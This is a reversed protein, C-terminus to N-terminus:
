SSSRSEPTGTSGFPDGRKVTSPTSTPLALGKTSLEQRERARKALSSLLKLADTDEPIHLCGDNDLRWGVSDKSEEGMDESSDQSDNQLSELPIEPKRKRSSSSGILESAKFWASEGNWVSAVNQERTLKPRTLLPKSKAEKEPSLTLGSKDSKSSTGFKTSPADLKSSLTRKSMPDDLRSLKKWNDLSISSSNGSTKEFPKSTSTGDKSTDMGHNKQTTTKAFSLSFGRENAEKLRRSMAALAKNMKEQKSNRQKMLWVPCQLPDKIGICYYHECYPCFADLMFKKKGQAASRLLTLPM